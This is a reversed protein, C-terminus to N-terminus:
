SNIRAQYFYHKIRELINFYHFTFYHFTFGLYFSIAQPLAGIFTLTGTSGLFLSIIGSTGLFSLWYSYSLQKYQQQQNLNSSHAVRQILKSFMGGILAWLGTFSIVFTFIAITLFLGNFFDGKPYFREFILNLTLWSITGTFGFSFWGLFPSAIGLIVFLINLNRQKFLITNSM